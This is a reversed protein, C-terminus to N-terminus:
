TLVPGWSVADEPWRKGKGLVSRADYVADEDDGCGWVGYEHTEGKRDPEPLARAVLSYGFCVRSCNKKRVWEAGPLQGAPRASPDEVLDQRRNAALMQDFKNMETKWRGGERSPEVGRALAWLVRAAGDPLVAELATTLNFSQHACEPCARVRVVSIPAGDLMVPYANWRCKSWWFNRRRHYEGQRGQMIQGAELWKTNMLRPRGLPLVVVKVFNLLEKSRKSENLQSKVVQGRAVWGSPARGWGTGTKSMVKLLPGINKRWAALVDGVRHGLHWVVADVLDPERAELVRVLMGLTAASQGRVM